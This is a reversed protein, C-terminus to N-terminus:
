APEGRWRVEEALRCLFESNTARGSFPSVTNGFYRALVKDDCRDFAVEIAHRIAREVRGGTSGFEEAVKPYLGHTIARALKPETVLHCIASVCYDYGSLSCPVGVDTLVSKAVDDVSMSSTTKDSIVRLEQVLREKEEDDVALAIATLLEVTQNINNM